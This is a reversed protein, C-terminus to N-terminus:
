TIGQDKIFQYVKLISGRQCNGGGAKCNLLVQASLYINPYQLNYQINLRDSLCSAIAVSWSSACYNPNFQNRLATLYNLGDKSRM